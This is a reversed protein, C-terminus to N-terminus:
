PTDAPALAGYATSALFLVIAVANLLGGWARGSTWRTLDGVIRLVLSAHLLVLHVYFMPRYAIPLGLVAPFIIPAHGFIMSFVFGILVAHLMADYRTGAASAGSGVALAGAVGLWVYGSLLAVAIFRTLGSRRVTRRAIDFAALWAALAVLAVGAVRIGVDPTLCTWALGALFGLAAVAFAARPARGLDLLRTMELREGAITLVLFGVWWWVARHIPWGALWLAQGALWCLAGTAMVITFLATQRRVIVFLAFALVASGLTLLWIGGSWGAMLAFAGLGTAVPAAYAWPRGLAVARELGIVTGLFGSIMLPGHSAVVSSSVPVGWGLRVLGGLLASLLALVGLAMLPLRARQRWRRSTLPPSTKDGAVELGTAGPRWRVDDVAAV